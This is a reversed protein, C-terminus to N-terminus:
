MPFCVNIPKSNDCCADNIHLNLLEIGAFWVQVVPVKFVKATFLLIESLVSALFHFDGERM